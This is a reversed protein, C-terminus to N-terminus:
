PIPLTLFNAILRKGAPTGISEPHFQLGFTPRERHRVAMVLGDPTSATIALCAPITARAAVLSHYRMAEFEEAVGQFLESGDHRVVSTKGHVAEPARVVKAGYTSCIAQHGLCIGLIPLHGALDRIARRGVGLRAPDDPHGPGPSLVLRGPQLAVLDDFAIADNRFVLPITGELEAIYQVLNFTFSDYNDLVVTKRM